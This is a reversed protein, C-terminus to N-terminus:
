RVHRYAWERVRSPLFRFLLACIKMTNAVPSWTNYRYMARAQRVVDIMRSRKAVKGNVRLYLLPEAINAVGVGRKLARSWLEYDQANAWWPDYMGIEAFVGMRFMVSPHVFPCRYHFRRAIGPRETPLKRLFTGEEDPAEHFELAWSGVIDVTPNEALYRAETELRQPHSIDDSDMRAYFPTETQSISMNLANPLGGNEEIVLHEIESHAEVYRSVLTELEASVPGDQILHIRYPRLTQSLMSDIALEFHEACSGHHFPIGVTIRPKAGEPFPVGIPAHKEDARLGSVSLGM